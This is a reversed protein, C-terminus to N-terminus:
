RCIHTKINNYRSHPTNPQPQGPHHMHPWRYSLHSLLRGFRIAEYASQGHSGRNIIFPTNTTASHIHTQTHISMHGLWIRTDTSSYDVGGPEVFHQVGYIRMPAVCPNFPDLISNPRYSSDRRRYIYIYVMNYAIHVPKLVRKTNIPARRRTSGRPKHAITFRARCRLGVVSYIYAGCLRRLAKHPIIRFNIQNLM